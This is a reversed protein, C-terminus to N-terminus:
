RGAIKVSSKAQASAFAPQTATQYCTRFLKRQEAFSSGSLDGCLETAARHIRLRLTKAGKATSLDLDNTAVAISAQSESAHVATASVGALTLATVAIINIISKM